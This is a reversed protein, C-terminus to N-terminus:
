LFTFSCLEFIPSFIWPRREWICSGGVNGDGMRARDGLAFCSTTTAGAWLLERLNNWIIRLFLKQKGKNKATLILVADRIVNARGGWDADGTGVFAKSGAWGGLGWIGGVVVAVDISVCVSSKDWEIEWSLCHWVPDISIFFWNICVSEAFVSSIEM